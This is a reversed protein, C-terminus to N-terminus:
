VENNLKIMNVKNSVLKDNNLDKIIRYKSDLVLNKKKRGDWWARRTKRYDRIDYCTYKGLIDLICGLLKFLSKVLKFIMKLETFAILCVSIGIVLKIIALM